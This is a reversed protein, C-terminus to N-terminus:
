ILNLLFNLQCKEECGDARRIQCRRYGYLSPTRKRRRCNANRRFLAGIRTGSLMRYHSDGVGARFGTTVGGDINLIRTGRLLPWKQERKSFMELTVQSLEM